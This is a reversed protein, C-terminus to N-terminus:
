TMLAPCSSFRKSPGSRIAEEDDVLLIRSVIGM